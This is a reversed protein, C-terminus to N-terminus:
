GTREWDTVTQGDEGVFSWRTKRFPPPQQRQSLQCFAKTCGAAGHEAISERFRGDAIARRHDPWCASPQMTATEPLPSDGAISRASAQRWAILRCYIPGHIHDAWEAVKAHLESGVISWVVWSLWDAEASTIAHREEQALSDWFVQARVRTQRAIVDDATVTPTLGAWALLPAKAETEANRRKAVGEARARRKEAETRKRKAM